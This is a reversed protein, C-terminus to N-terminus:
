LAGLMFLVAWVALTTVIAFAIIAVSGFNAEALKFGKGMDWFAQRVNYAVNYFLLFTLGFLVLLGLPSGLAGTYAAYSDPGGALALLWGTLLLMALYLGFISGRHIISTAMTIHWRWLLPSGFGGTMLHPSVPRPRPADPM